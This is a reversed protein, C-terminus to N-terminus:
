GIFADADVVTHKGDRFYAYQFGRTLGYGGVRGQKDLAVLGVQFDPPTRQRRAIREIARRCAETPSLGARMLEVVLFSGAIRIVEEGLGTATAAGVENDVYLGAGIIPSDGVRGHMKWAVGSTSCAGGLNGRRDVALMGVTDHNNRGVGQPAQSKRWKLYQERAQKTLLNQRRFGQALAFQLAGDGALMVHPTKEMVRRAVQVPHLIHELAVVSGANGFEDMISADLTVKGDRDPLGGLGVSDVAPDAEILSVGAEVADIARAGKELAQFAAATVKAGYDWTTVVLPSRGDQARCVLPGLAAM